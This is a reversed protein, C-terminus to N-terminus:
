LSDTELDQVWNILANYADRLSVLAFSQEAVREKLEVVYEALGELTATKHKFVDTHYQEAGPWDFELPKPLTELKRLAERIKM